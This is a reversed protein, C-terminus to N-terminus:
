TRCIYSSSQTVYRVWRHPNYNRTVEAIKLYKIQLGSVNYMPIEFNMSVPGIEKRSDSATPNNLTIKVITHELGGQFKKIQWEANQDTQNYETTQGQIGKPIEFTVSSSVKPVSFKIAVGTAFHNPAFNAKVNLTFQLKYQSLEDIFPDIRFPSNYDGNIRYNMVLFEGDPPKIGLTKMSDFDDLNVCEHFNCDDLVVSGLAGQGGVTNERGVVLNDNLVLRLEPNGQLYSKMQIVGDISSNIIHGNSNFLISLKEFIDVFIENKQGKKNQTGQM